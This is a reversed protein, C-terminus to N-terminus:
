SEREEIRWDSAFNAVILQAQKETIETAPNTKEPVIRYETRCVLYKQMKRRLIMRPSNLTRVDKMAQFSGRGNLGLFWENIHPDRFEGAWEFGEPIEVQNLPKNYVNDVIYKYVESTIIRLGPVECPREIYVQTLDM